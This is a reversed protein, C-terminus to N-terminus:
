RRRAPFLDPYLIKAMARFVPGVNQGPLSAVIAEAAATVDAGETTPAFFGAEVIPKPPPPPADGYVVTHGAKTMEEALRVAVEDLVLWTKTEGDYSRLGPSVSKVLDVLDPDYRFNVRVMASDPQDVFRVTTM